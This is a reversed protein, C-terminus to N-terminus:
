AEPRAGGELAYLRTSKTPLKSQVESHWEHACECTLVQTSGQMWIKDQGMCAESQLVDFM